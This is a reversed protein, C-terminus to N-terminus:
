DLFKIKRNQTHKLNYNLYIFILYEIIKNQNTCRAHFRGQVTMQCARFLHRFVNQNIFTTYTDNNYIWICIKFRVFYPQKKMLYKIKNSCILKFRHVRLEKTIKQTNQVCNSDHNTDFVAELCKRESYTYGFFNCRTVQTVLLVFTSVLYLYVFVFIMRWFSIALVVSMPSNELAM